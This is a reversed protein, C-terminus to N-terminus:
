LNKIYQHIPTLPPLSLTSSDAGPKTVFNSNEGINGYRGLTDGLKLSITNETGPVAGNNPPYNISGDENYWSSNSGNEVSITGSGKNGSVLIEGSINGTQYLNIISLITLTAYVLIQKTDKEVIASILLVVSAITEM